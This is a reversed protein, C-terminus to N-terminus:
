RIVAIATSVERSVLFTLVPPRATFGPQRPLPTRRTHGVPRSAVREGPAPGGGREVNKALAFAPREELPPLPSAAHLGGSDVRSRATVVSVFLVRLFRAHRFASRALLTGGMSSTVRCGRENTREALGGPRRDRRRARPGKAYSPLGV